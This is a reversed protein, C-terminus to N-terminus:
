LRTPRQLPCKDHPPLFLRHATRIFAQKSTCRLAMGIASSLAQFNTHGGGIPLASASKTSISAIRAAKKPLAWYPPKRDMHLMQPLGTASKGAVLAITDDTVTKPRFRTFFPLVTATAVLKRVDGLALQTHACFAALHSPIHFHLGAKESGFLQRRTEDPSINGSLSHFMAVWSYLTQDALLQPVFSIQQARRSM